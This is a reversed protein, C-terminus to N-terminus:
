CYFTLLATNVQVAAKVQALQVRQTINSLWHRYEVASLHADSM